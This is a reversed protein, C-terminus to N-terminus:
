RAVAGARAAREDARESGAQEEGAHVCAPRRRARHMISGYCLCQNPNRGTHAHGGSYIYPDVVYACIRKRYRSMFVSVNVIVFCM